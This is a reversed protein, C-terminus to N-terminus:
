SQDDFADKLNALAKAQRETAPPEVIDVWVADGEVKTAYTRLADGGTLNEGSSLDFKWNHWNCTLICAGDLSGERLPYGEHPCRNNCALIGRGTKFLAIQRKGIKVVTRGDRVLRDLPAAKEWAM